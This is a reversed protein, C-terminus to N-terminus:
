ARGGAEGLTEVFRHFLRADIEPTLQEGVLVRAREITMAVAMERLRNVTAREAADIEAEAAREVRGVEEGALARIREAEAASDHRARELLNAAEQEVGALKAEAARLREEAHRHATEAEAITAAIREAKRRFVVKLKRGAWWGGVGFMLAFNLWRFVWDTTSPAEAQASAALPALLALLAACAALKEWRRGGFERPLWRKM